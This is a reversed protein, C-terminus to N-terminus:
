KRLLKDFHQLLSQVEARGYDLLEGQSEPWAHHNFIRFCNVVDEGSQSLICSFCSRMEEVVIDVAAAVHPNNFVGDTLPVQGKLEM